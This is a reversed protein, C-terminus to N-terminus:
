RPDPIRGALSRTARHNGHVRTAHVVDNRARRGRHGRAMVIEFAREGLALRPPERRNGGNPVDMYRCDEDIVGYLRYCEWDLEEQLAIMHALLDASADRHDDLEGPTLPFRDALQAPLHVLRETAVRDLERALGIPHTTPLPFQM